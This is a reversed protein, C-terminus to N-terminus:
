FMLKAKALGKFWGFVSKVATMSVKQRWRIFSSLTILAMFLIFNVNEIPLNRNYGKQEAYVHAFAFIWKDPVSGFKERFMDNIEKHVAVRSGLTKNDNYMRSGALIRDIRVFDVQKGLRLWYEYDMCYQLKDDLLGAKELLKRRFFVSPQCIFCIDKLREYNWNETYYPEIVGDNEDIHNANGYVVDVYPHTDFFEKVAALAGAYYIDDSNLWGIIEGTTTKIGNNVAHAQGKDKESVWRLSNGYKKLIEVTEDTSGGDAVFYEMRPVGQSLVSQITREIFRGQNYSPTIVTFEPPM